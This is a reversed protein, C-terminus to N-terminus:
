SRSRSSGSQPQSEPRTNIEQVKEKALRLKGGAIHLALMLQQKAAEGERERRLNRYHIGGLVLCISVTAFAAWRVFPQSFLSLWRNGEISQASTQQAARSLVRAAFNEPVDERRLADKLSQELPRMDDTPNM